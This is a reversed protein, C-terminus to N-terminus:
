LHRKKYYNIRNRKLFKIFNYNALKYFYLSVLMALCNISFIIAGLMLDYQVIGLSLITTIGFLIFLIFSRNYSNYRLPYKKKFANLLENQEKKSLDFYYM